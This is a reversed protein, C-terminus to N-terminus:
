KIEKISYGEGMQEATTEADEKRLRPIVIRGEYVVDYYKESM